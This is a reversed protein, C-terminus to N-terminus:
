NSSSTKAALALEFEHLQKLMQREHPALRIAKKQTRVADELQGDAFYCRALTDLYAPEDPMLELSRLSLSLAETTSINCKSLLWALQNCDLEEVNGHALQS